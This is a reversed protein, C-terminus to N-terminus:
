AQENKSERKDQEEIYGKVRYILDENKDFLLGVMLDARGHKMFLEIVKERILLDPFLLLGSIKEYNDRSDGPSKIMIQLIYLVNQRNIESNLYDFLKTRNGLTYIIEAAAKRVFHCDSNLYQEVPSVDLKDCRLVDKVVRPSMSETAM